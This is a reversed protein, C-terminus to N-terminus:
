QCEHVKTRGKSTNVKNPRVRSLDTLRSGREAKKFTVIGAAKLSKMHNLVELHCRQPQNSIVYLSTVQAMATASTTSPQSAPPPTVSTCLDLLDKSYTSGDKNAYGCIAMDKSSSYAELVRVEGNSGSAKSSSGVLQQQDTHSSGAAAQQGDHQQQQENNQKRFQQESSQQKVQVVGGLQESQKSIVQCDCDSSLEFM